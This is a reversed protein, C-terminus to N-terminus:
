APVVEQQDVWVEYTRRFGELRVFLKAGSIELIEGTLNAPLGQVGEIKQGVTFDQNAAFKMRDLEDQSVTQFKAGAKVFSISLRGQQKRLSENEPTAELFVYDDLAPYFTM